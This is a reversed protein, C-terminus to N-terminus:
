RSKRYMGRLLAQYIHEQEYHYEIVPTKGKKLRNSIDHDIREAPLFILDYRESKAINDLKATKGKDVTETSVDAGLHELPRVYKMPVEGRCLVLINKNAFRTALSLKIQMLKLCEELSRVDRELFMNEDRLSSVSSESGALKKGLGLIEEEQGVVKTRLYGLEKATDTKEMRNIRDRLQRITEELSPIRQIEKRMPEIQERVLVKQAKELDEALHIYYDREEATSEIKENYIKMERFFMENLVPVTFNLDLERGERAALFQLYFHIWPTKLREDDEEVFKRPFYPIQGKELAPFERFVEEVSNFRLQRIYKSRTIQPDRLLAFLYGWRQRSNGTELINNIKYDLEHLSMNKVANVDEYYFSDLFSLFRSASTKEKRNGFIKIVKGLVKSIMAAGIEAAKEDEEILHMGLKGAPDFTTGLAAAVLLTEQREKPDKKDWSKILGRQSPLKKLAEPSIQSLSGGVVTYEPDFHKLMDKLHAVIRNGPMQGLMMAVEYVSACNLAVFANEFYSDQEKQGQTALEAM